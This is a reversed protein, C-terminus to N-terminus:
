RSKGHCYRFKRGSGCECQRNGLIREWEPQLTTLAEFGIHRVYAKELDVMPKEVEGFRSMWGAENEKAIKHFEEDLEPDVHAGGAQNATHLVFGSRAMSVDRPSRFVEEEWWDVFSVLRPGFPGQALLPVYIAGEGGVRLRVLPTDALLNGPTIRPSYSRFLVGKLGLQGIISRSQGKDYVLVRVATAIRRFEDQDGRDFDDCSKRLLSLQARFEEQIDTLPVTVRPRAPKKSM